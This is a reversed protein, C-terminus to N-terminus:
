PPLRDPTWDLETSPLVDLSAADARRLTEALRTIKAARRDLADELYAAERDRRESIGQLRHDDQMAEIREAVVRWDHERIPRDLVALDENHPGRNYSLSLLVTHVAAPVEDDLLSPFRRAIARWYPEAVLPFVDAAENRPIRISRLVPSERIRDRAERGRVGMVGRCVEYQLATLRRRYVREFLDEDIYGLDVGPDLTVGSAGGPWYCSRGFYDLGSGELAHVWSADGRFAHLRESMITSLNWTPSTSPGARRGCAHRRPVLIRLRNILSWSLKVYPQVALGVVQQPGAATEYRPVILWEWAAERGGTDVDEDPAERRAM